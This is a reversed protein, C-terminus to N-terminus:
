LREHTQRPLNNADPPKVDSVRGDRSLVPGLFARLRNLASKELWSVTQRTIGLSRAAEACTNGELHVLEVVERMRPTLLSLANRIQDQQEQLGMPEKQAAPAYDDREGQVAARTAARAADRSYGLRIQAAIGFLFSRERGQQIRKKKELFVLFTRQVLDDVDHPPLARALFYHQLAPIQAEIWEKFDPKM